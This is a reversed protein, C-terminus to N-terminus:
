HIGIREFHYRKEGIKEIQAKYNIKYTTVNSDIYFKANEMFSDAKITKNTLNFTSDNEFVSLRDGCWEASGDELEEAFGCEVGAVEFTNILEEKKNLILMHIISYDDRAIYVFLAKRELGINREGYRYATYDGALGIKVAPMSDLYMRKCRKDVEPMWEVNVSDTSIVNLQNNNKDECASLVVIMAIILKKM